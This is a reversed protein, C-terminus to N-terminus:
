TKLPFASRFAAQKEVEVFADIGGPTIMIDMEVAQLPGMVAAGLNRSPAFANIHVGNM